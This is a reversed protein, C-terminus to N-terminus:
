YKQITVCWYKQQKACSPESAPDFAHRGFERNQRGEVDQQMEQEEGGALFPEESREEGGQGHECGGGGGSSLM